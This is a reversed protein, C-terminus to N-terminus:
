LASLEAGINILEAGKTHAIVVKADAVTVQDTLEDIRRELASVDVPPPADIVAGTASRAYALVDRGDYRIAVVAWEREGRPFGFYPLRESSSLTRIAPGGPWQYIKAGAPLRLLRASTPESGETVIVDREEEDFYPATKKDVEGEPYVAAYFSGDNLRTTFHMIEEVPFWEGEYGGRGLPDMLFTHDTNPACLYDGHKDAKAVTVLGQIYVTHIFDDKSTWRRLYPPLDLEDGTVVLGAGDRLAGKFDLRDMLRYLPDIYHVRLGPWVLSVALAAEDLTAGGVNGPDVEDRLRESLRILGDTTIDKDFLRGISWKDLAMVTSRWTCDNWVPEKTETLFRPRYM